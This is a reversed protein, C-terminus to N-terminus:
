RAEGYRWGLERLASVVQLLPLGVVNFWDGEVREFLFAGHGEIMYGGACGSGEGHAVYAALEDDRLDDRVVMTTTAFGSREGGETLLCWGTVLDHHRGRMAKLRALHDAPDTPKGFVTSGDFVVQDAGLVWGGAVRDRVDAAKARALALALAKPEPDHHSREDVGHPVGRFPLGADALMKLRWRSTSALILDTMTM